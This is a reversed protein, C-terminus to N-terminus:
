TCSGPASCKATPSCLWSKENVRPVPKSPVCARCNEAVSPECVATAYALLGFGFTVTPTFADNPDTVLGITVAVMVGASVKCIVKPIRLTPPYEPLNEDNAQLPKGAPADQAKPSADSDTLGIPAPCVLM